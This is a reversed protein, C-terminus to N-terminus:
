EAARGISPTHPKLISETLNWQQLFWADGASGPLNQVLMLRGRVMQVISKTVIEEPKMEKNFIRNNREIWIHYITCLLSLRAIVSKLSKNKSEKVALPVIDPWNVNCKVKIANWVKLSFMCNFFLHSHNETHYQCFPCNFDDTLGFSKLRDGTNLKGHLAIWVVFSVRPIVLPGWLLNYWAVNDHKARWHNWVSHISFQGDPTLTWSLIDNSSPTPKFSRSKQHALSEEVGCLDVYLKYNSRELNQLSLNSPDMDLKCQVSELDSKPVLVRTSIDSFDKKNLAKLVSKLNRLKQCVRFMLVGHIYQSWENAVLPLFDEHKSWFNFFKFPKKYSTVEDSITVVVPSHDSVGSPLFNATSDVGERKNAWTFHCGTYSLDDLESDLILSNFEEKASSWNQSGGFKEHSFRTANFDCLFIIPSKSQSHSLRVM